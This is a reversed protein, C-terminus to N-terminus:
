FGDWLGAQEQSIGNEFAHLHTEVLHGTSLFQSIKPDLLSCISNRESGEVVEELGRGM